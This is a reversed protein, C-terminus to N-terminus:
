KKRCLPIKPVCSYVNPFIYRVRAHVYYIKDLSIYIVLCQFMHVMKNHRRLERGTSKEERITKLIQLQIIKYCSMEKCAGFKLFVKISVILCPPITFAVIPLTISIISLM